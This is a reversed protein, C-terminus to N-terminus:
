TLILQVCTNEFVFWGMWMKKKLGTHYVTESSDWGFESSGSLVSGFVIM